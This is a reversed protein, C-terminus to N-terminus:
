RNDRSIRSIKDERKSNPVRGPYESPAPDRPSRLHSKTKLQKEDSKLTNTLKHKTKLCFTFIWLLQDLHTRLGAWPIEDKRARGRRADGTTTLHRRRPLPEAQVDSPRQGLGQVSVPVDEGEGVVEGLPHLGDGHLGAQRGADDLVHHVDDGMESEREPDQGPQRVVDDLFHTADRGSVSPCIDTANQPPPM